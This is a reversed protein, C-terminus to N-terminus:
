KKRFCNNIFDIIDKPEDNLKNANRKQKKVNNINKKLEKIEDKNLKNDEDNLQDEYEQLKKNIENLGNNNIQQREVEILIDKIVPYAFQSRDNTRDIYSVLGTIKNIFEYSGNETFLGNENCYKAKFIDFDESM